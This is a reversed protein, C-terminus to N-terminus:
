PEFHYNGSYEMIGPPGGWTGQGHLNELGGTGGRIVWTGEWGQAGLQGVIRLKMTGPASGDVTGTFTLNGKYSMNGNCHIVLIGSETETGEFTGTFTGADDMPIFTNCGMYEEPGYSTLAYTWVGSAKGPPGALVPTSAVALLVIVSFITILKKKMVIRRISYNESIQIVFVCYLEFL